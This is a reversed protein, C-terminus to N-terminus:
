FGWVLNLILYRPLLNSRFITTSIDSTIVQEIIEENTLNRMVFSAQWKKSKPIHKLIADLFLFHEDKRNSDPLYYDSSFVFVWKKSPKIIIKFNNRWSNNIFSQKNENKSNTYQWAFTNEINMPIDFATKYFFANNLFWRQNQRLESNNIVNRFNSISYNSTLKVTSEIYPIYKSMQVKMQWNSNVQPLYFYETQTINETINSNTFFNGTSKQFSFNANLELQSYLDNNFYQLNYRQSNQIDLNPLNKIITRNNVLIQNLFFYQESNTSQNYGLSTTLFSVSNLNYKIQLAPEFIFDNKTQEQREIKQHLIQNLFRISYSTSIQWKGYNVNYVGTNFINRQTYDFKNESITEESNLLNSEFPSNNLNVGIMFTYKDREGSGLYTIKGESYIKKFQSEQVDFDSTDNFLSPSITFKQPLNNYSHLFSLQLAERNSIKKTWLLDQKMYFDKTKLSSYFENTQNQVIETPTEINEQRVRLNYELLSSKSTNYKIELDGRYQQPKKTIFINDSTTFNEYNVIFQNEYFLNTTIRDQLYYMNLKVVLKPNLKLIANYNSFFQHNINARPNSFITEPIVKEAFYNQEKQQEVNNINFGFYNFPSYNIGINNQTLTAFSKFQKSVSLFNVSLNSALKRNNFVGLGSTISGSYNTKNKKLKLNLSVKGGQEINKLLPNESYNDIAEVQEVMDVNINKTGLMYNFGFLNDGDLTVTEISKGKYLIEGTNNNVEIGPLKKIIDEIKSESGDSYKKVKFSITDQKVKFKPTKGIVIVEKLQQTIEKYLIFNVLYNQEKNQKSIKKVISSYGDLSAEVFITDTVKLLLTNKLKLSYKGTRDTRAFYLINNTNKNEKILINSFVLAEGKKNKVFGSITQGLLQYNVLLLVIIIKENISM